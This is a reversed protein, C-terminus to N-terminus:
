QEQQYGLQGIDGGLLCKDSISVDAACEKRVLVRQYDPTVIVKMLHFAEFEIHISM